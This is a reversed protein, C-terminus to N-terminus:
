PLSKIRVLSIFAFTFLHFTLDGHSSFFSSPLLVSEVIDLASLDRVEVEAKAKNIHIKNLGSSGQAQGNLLMRGEDVVKMPPIQDQYSLHCCFFDFSIHSQLTFSFPHHCCIVRLLTWPLHERVEAEAIIPNNNLGSSSQAQGNLLMIGEDVVKM